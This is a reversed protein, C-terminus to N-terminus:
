LFIKEGSSSEQVCNEISVAHLKMQILLVVSPLTKSFQAILLLSLASPICIFGVVCCQCTSVTTLLVLLMVQSVAVKDEVLDAHGPWTFAPGTNHCAQWYSGSCKKPSYAFNCFAVILKVMDMWRDVHFLKAEV